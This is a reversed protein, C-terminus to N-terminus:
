ARLRRVASEFDAEVQENSVFRIAEWGAARAGAVNKEVDDVFLLSEAPLGIRERLIDYIRRDPKVVGEEGSIVLADSLAIFDAFASRFYDKAFSPPMNTLIGIKFGRSKLSKMWELTRGNRYLWSENDAKVFAATTDADVSLGADDWVRGYFEAPTLEGSDFRLRHAAFGRVIADWDIGKEAALAKVREPMTLTTMVGGFDFVVAKIKM